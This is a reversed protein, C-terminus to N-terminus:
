RTTYMVWDFDAHGQGAGGNSTAYLGLYAGTYGQSLIVDGPLRAFEAYEGNTSFGVLTAKLEGVDIAASIM